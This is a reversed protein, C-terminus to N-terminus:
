YWIDFSLVENEELSDFAPLLKDRVYDRVEKVDQYYYSDYETSGFFFGSVTPLLIPGQSHDGLVKECKSLLEEAYEKEITFPAQSEVDLGKSEFFKVLFNVKRFYGIQTRKRKTIFIDLGMDKSQDLQILVVM